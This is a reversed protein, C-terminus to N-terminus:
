GKHIKTHCMPCVWKVDLPFAYDHHHGHIKGNSNGCEQCECPKTVRGSKIANGLIVHAARKDPNREQWRKKARSMATKGSESAQYRSHREKVRPDTKFRKADYAKYYDSKSERNERTLRKHCEKCRQRVRPYFEGPENGQTGCIKCTLMHM